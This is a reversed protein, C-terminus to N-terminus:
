RGQEDEWVECESNVPKLGVIKILDGTLQMGSNYKDFCAGTLRKLKRHVRVYEKVVAVFEAHIKECDRFCQETEKSYKKM